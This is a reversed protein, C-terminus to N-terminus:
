GMDEIILETVARIWDTDQRLRQHRRAHTESFMRIWESDHHRTHLWIRELWEEHDRWDGLDLPERDAIVLVFAVQDLDYRELIPSILRPFTPAGEPLRLMKQTPLAGAKEGTFILESRGIRHITLVVDKRQLDKMRNRFQKVFGIVKSRLDKHQGATSGSVLIVGYRKGEGLKPMKGNIRHFIQLRLGNAFNQVNEEFRELTSLPLAALPRISGYLITLLHPAADKGNIKQPEIFGEGLERQIM